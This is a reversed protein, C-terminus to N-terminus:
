LNYKTTLLQQDKYAEYTNELLSAVTMPGVGGPVPTIYSCKNKINEYDTDGCLKDDIRHIGVDIVVPLNDGIFDLSLFKPIGCCVIIIDANKCYSKIKDISTKSHLLTVNGNFVKNSLLNALPRGVTNSRGIIVIDRNETEVKYEKLLTCIGKPTAAIHCEKGSMLKALNADTFGDVDKEPYITNIIKYANLHEPLPLQVIIGHIHESHNFLEIDRILSSEKVNNDYQLVTVSIGCEECAKVKNKVYINSAENFGVKIIYLTPKVSYYNTVQLINNKINQVIEKSRM